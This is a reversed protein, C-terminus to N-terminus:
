TVLGQLYKIIESRSHINLKGYLDSIYNKVTGESLSLKDAIQKNTAKGLLLDAMELERTTLYIHQLKLREDLIDKNDYILSRVKKALINAAEGSIVVENHNADHIARILQERELEKLLFGDAGASLGIIILEEEAFSSLLIVKVNPYQEKVQYIAEIGGEMHVDMLIIDPEIEGVLGLIESVKTTFGAVEVGKERTLIVRLGEMFLRQDDVLLLKVM